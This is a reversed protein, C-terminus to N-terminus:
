MCNAGTLIAPGPNRVKSEKKIEPIKCIEKFAEVAEPKQCELKKMQELMESLKTDAQKRKEDLEARHEKKRKIQSELEKIVTQNDEKAIILSIKDSSSSLSCGFHSSIRM